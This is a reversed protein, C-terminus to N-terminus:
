TAAGEGDGGSALRSDVALVAVLGCSPSGDSIVADTVTLSLGAKLANGGGLLNEEESLHQQLSGTSALLRLSGM